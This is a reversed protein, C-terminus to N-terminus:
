HEPHNPPPGYCCWGLFGAAPKATAQPPAESQLMDQAQCASVFGDEVDPEDQRRMPTTLWFMGSLVREVEAMHLDLTRCAETCAQLAWDAGTVIGAKTLSGPPLGTQLGIIYPQDDLEVRRMYFMNEFLSGDKRANMQACFVGDDSARARLMWPEQDDNSMQFDASDRVANCFRRALVRVKDSVMDKPVPDVLFRCNRGVIEDMEYGCLTKFGTSCGILPCQPLRPDALTLSFQLGKLNDGAIGFVKDIAEQLSDAQEATWPKKLGTKATKAAVFGDSADPEDQRRLGCQLWFRSAFLREVQVM